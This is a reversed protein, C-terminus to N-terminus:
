GKRLPVVNDAAPATVELLGRRVVTDAVDSIHASYTREIQGVSTDHLVAVLRIPTGALLQRVISSHRFVYLTTAPDLGAREVARRFAVAHQARGSHGWATGDPRTLLPAHAPRSEAQQRLVAALSHSIPVPKKTIKRTGRGKRSSPMMLRPDARDDQLDCVELRALQSLRGGTTAAVEVLIGLSRNEAHAAAILKLVDTDPLIVNRARHADPLGALGIRWASRNTIGRPDHAAALELAAKLGCRTRNVTAPALGAASLGDRWRRLESAGLLSVPKGLLAGALHARVRGANYPDGGRAKLDAEYRDLAEAVTVPRDGTEGAKGRALALARDAAQWYTLVSGGDADEYDDALAVRKLWTRGHGDAAKVSWTGPGQNRRFAIWIGPALKVTYPKRRVTLKLRGSRNELASSRRRAMREEWHTGPLTGFM